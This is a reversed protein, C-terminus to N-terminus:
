DCITFLFTFGVGWGEVGGPWSRCVFLQFYIYTYVSTVHTIEIVKKDRRLCGGNTDLFLMLPDTPAVTTTFFVARFQTRKWKRLDDISQQPILAIRSYTVISCCCSHGGRRCHTNDHRHYHRHHHLASRWVSVANCVAHLACESCRKGAGEEASQWLQHVVSPARWVATWRLPWHGRFRKRCHFCCLTWAHVCVQPADAGPKFFFSFLLETDIWVVNTKHTSSYAVRVSIFSVDSIYWLQGNCVYQWKLKM